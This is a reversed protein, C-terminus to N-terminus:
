PDPRGFGETLKKPVRLQVFYVGLRKVLKTYTNSPIHWIYGGKKHFAVLNDEEAIKNISLIPMGVAADQFVTRRQQGDPTFCTIEAEGRNPLLGGDAAQFQVGDKQGQSQRIAAGPFIRRCNAVHAASGSDALAWVMEYDSDNLEELQPLQIKGQNVQSVIWDLQRKTLPPPTKGQTGASARPQHPKPGRPSSDKQLQQAVHQLATVM